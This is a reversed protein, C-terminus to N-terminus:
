HMHLTQIQQRVIIVNCDKVGIELGIAIEQHARQLAFPRGTQSAKRMMLMVQVHADHTSGLTVNLGQKIRAQSSGCALWTHVQEAEGHAIM